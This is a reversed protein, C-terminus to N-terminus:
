HKVIDGGMVTGDRHFGRSPIDISFKDMLLVGPGNDCVKVTYPVAPDILVGSEVLRGTADFEAGNSPNACFSSSFRLATFSTGPATPGTNLSENMVDQATFFGTPDGKVDFAFTTQESTGVLITGTGTVERQASPLSLAEPKTPFQADNCAMAVVLLALAAAALCSRGVSPTM